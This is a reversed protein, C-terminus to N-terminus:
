DYGMGAAGFYPGGGNSSTRDIAREGDFLDEFEQIVLDPSTEQNM